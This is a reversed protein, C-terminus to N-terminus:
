LPVTEGIIESFLLLGILISAGGALVRLKRAHGVAHGWAWAAVGMTLVSAISFGLLYAIGGSVSPAAVALAVVVGGSGAFGHIIGIAMSEEDAHTHTLGIEKGAIWLHRHGGRAHERREGHLHQLLMVGFAERGALVRIGLAILVVVVLLEFTSVISEPVRVGVILFFAGLIFIPVSHGIGWACGTRLPREENEVLTSVAAVHDAELAHRAGFAGGLLLGTSVAGALLPMSVM